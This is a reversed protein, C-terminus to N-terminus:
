PTSPPDRPAAAIKGAQAPALVKLVAQASVALQGQVMVSGRMFILGRTRHVVEARAQAFEGARAAGVFHTDMQVTICPMRECAQWAVTSIAHDMLTMLLGGHVVGAPNLHLPGCLIGYAWAGNESRTWLPGATEIFGPLARQTWGQAQLQAANEHKNM